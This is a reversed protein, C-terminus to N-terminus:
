LLEKLTVKVEVSNASTRFPFTFYILFVNFGRTCRGTGSSSYMSDCGSSGGPGWSSVPRPHGLGEGAEGRSVSGSFGNLVNLIWSVRYNLGEAESATKTEKQSKNLILPM